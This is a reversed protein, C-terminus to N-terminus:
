VKRVGLGDFVIRLYDMLELQANVSHKKIRIFNKSDTLFKEFDGDDGYTEFNRKYIKTIQLSLHEGLKVLVEGSNKSGNTSQHYEDVETNFRSRLLDRIENKSAEYMPLFREAFNDQLKDSLRNFFRDGLNKDLKPLFFRDVVYLQMVCFEFALNNNLVYEHHYKEKKDQQKIFGTLEDETYEAKFNGSIKNALLLSSALLYDFVRDSADDFEKNKSKFLDFIM